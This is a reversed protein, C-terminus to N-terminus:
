KNEMRFHVQGIIKLNNNQLFEALNFKSRDASTIGNLDLKSQDLRKEQQVLFFIYRHFGSNKPPSPPEYNLVIENNNIVLLHLWYKYIPNTPSPADPDVMIITRYEGPVKDFRIEPVIKRDNYPLITGDTIEHGKIFIRIKEGM